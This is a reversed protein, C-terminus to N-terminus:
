KTRKKNKLKYLFIRLRLFKTTFINFPLQFGAAGKHGGGGLKEAIDKCSINNDSSFISYTYIFKGNRKHLVFPCVMDYKDIEDGFLLSNSRQNCALVRYGFLNFVFSNAKLYRADLARKNDVVIKGREIMQDLYKHVEADECFIDVIEDNNIYEDFLKEWDNEKDYNGESDVLHIKGSNIAQNFYISNDNEHNWTDWDSVLYVFKPIHILRGNPEPNFLAYYTLLAASYNNKNNGLLCLSWNKSLGSLMLNNRMLDASSQHHDIWIINKTIKDINILYGCTDETFSLDVFVVIDDKEIPFQNFNTSYDCAYTKIELGTSEFWKRAIFGSCYGDADTHHYIWVTKGNFTLNKFVHTYCSSRITNQDFVM